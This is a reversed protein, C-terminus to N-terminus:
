RYANARKIAKQGDAAEPVPVVPGFTEDAVLPNDDRDIKVVTPSFGLKAGKEDVPEGGTLVEGGGEKAAAVHKEVVARQAASTLPGVDIGIRLAKTKEVIKDTLAKAVKSEVYVREVAACNQGANMM